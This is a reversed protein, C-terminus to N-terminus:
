PKHSVASELPFSQAARENAARLRELHTQVIAKDEPTLAEQPTAQKLTQSLRDFAELFSAKQDAPIQSQLSRIKYINYFESDMISFGTAEPFAIPISSLVEIGKETAAPLYDLPNGWDGVNCFIDSATESDDCFAYQRLPEKQLYAWRIATFDYSGPQRPRNRAWRPAYDMVSSPYQTGGITELETSAKFNHTLGLAHGVEHMITEFFYGRIYAAPSSSETDTIFPLLPPTEGCALRVPVQGIKGVVLKPSRKKLKNSYDIVPQYLDVLSSGNILVSSSFKMGSGSDAMSTEALGAYNITQDGKEIWRVVNYRPDGINMAESALDVAIANRGFAKNWSLIAKRAVSVYEQPFDKLFFRIQTKYRQQPDFPLRLIPLSSPDEPGQGGVFFGLHRSAAEGHTIPALATVSADMRRLSLRLTVSGEAFSEEVEGNAQTTITTKVRIHHKLDAVITDADQQVSLTEAQGLSTWSSGDVASSSGGIQNVSEVLSIENKVSAFDVIKKGDESEIVPFILLPSAQNDLAFVLLEQQPPSGELSLNVKLVESTSLMLLSDTLGEQDIVFFSLGFTDLLDRDELIGMKPNETPIFKSSSSTEQPHCAALFLLLMLPALIPRLKSYPLM